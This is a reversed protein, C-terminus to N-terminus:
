VEDDDLLLIKISEFEAKNEQHFQQYLERDGFWSIVESRMLNTRGESLISQFSSYPWNAFNSVLGHHQPNFHIYFVLRCLYAESDVPKRGFRQQFLSGSRNYRQNFTRTYANLLHGFQRQVDVYKKDKDTIITRQLAAEEKVRVLFHVHNPLLCYAFTDVYPLMYKQYLKLFYTYNEKGRFITERNNGRTYIHYFKDPELATRTQM